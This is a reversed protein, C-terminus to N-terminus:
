PRSDPGPRGSYTSSWQERISSRGCSPHDLTGGALPRLLFCQRAVGPDVTSFWPDGAPSPVDQRTTGGPPLSGSAPLVLIAAIAAAGVAGVAVSPWWWRSSDAGISYASM